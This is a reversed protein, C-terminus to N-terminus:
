PCQQQHLYQQCEEATLSRTRRTNALAILDQVNLFYGRGIGDASITMLHQNDQSFGVWIGGPFTLLAQGTAADWVKSTGDLGGTAIRSGDPSFAVGLITSSHGTLTLLQKGTQIDWVKGLNGSGTLLRKGDPSYAVLMIPDVPDSITQLLKGNAADWIRATQDNSGTALQKGDLSFAVGRIYATHGALDFLKKGTALDWVAAKGDENGLAVQSGDPSIDMGFAFGDFAFSVLQAGTASDWVRAISDAGLTVYRSLDPTSLMASIQAGHEVTTSRLEKAGAPSLDWQKFIDKGSNDPAYATVYINSPRVFWGRWAPTIVQWEQSGTPTLNWLRLSGDSHSTFLRMGDQSLAMSDIMGKSGPVIFLQQGSAADWVRVTGDASATVLRAGDPTYALGNFGNQHGYLAFLHKTQPDSKLAEFDWVKVIVGVAIAIFKQDPSFAVRQPIGESQYDFQKSFLEKYAAPGSTLNLEWLKAVCDGGGTVLYKGDPSFGVMIAENEHGTLDLLAQGSAIDWVKVTNDSSATALFKSNPSFDVAYVPGTHGSLTKLLKGSASDWLNVNNQDGVVALLSGDPSFSLVAGSTFSMIDTYVPNSVTLMSTTEPKGANDLRWIKLNGNQSGSALKQGDPSLAVGYVPSSDANLSAVLRSALLAQHLANQGEITDTKALSQLSLLISREPDVQLSSAAAAALERAAALDARQRSQLGLVGAAVALIGALVLAVTLYVARQRLRSAARTQEEARQKESMALKLATELEYQRQAEREAEERETQTQSVHLFAQEQNNLQRPNAEAWELAQALRAGRYLAGPDHELIEWEQAAETLHRQVRLGERNQTLWERLKPWERILAEHAVEVTDEGTTILRADALKVLVEELQSPDSYPAPPLLENLTARRRTDQTGEGLETLRLFISRAIEQQAPTLEQNYVSEATRAIAGRVGGSEAYAKLTMINGRRRKWTELLAHSLLPLAGPEPQHDEDAGIDHLMFEVLGPSFEWGGRHAPEEIVQRLETTTMAGIYEQHRAVIERLEAYQALHEYFDARLAIVLTLAGDDMKVADLLNDVFARREVEDNCLTFLEEFQDVVLLLRKKPVPTEVRSLLSRSREVHILRQAFLHLSRPDRKLDDILTATATVSEATHTLCLALAELPRATPTTIFVQWAYRGAQDRSHKLTPVLGARIVSSKGSGSAGIVALFRQHQLIEVLRATIPERGFFLGADIEDFFQLGKFPSEGPTPPEEVTSVTKLPPFNIPLGEIDLQFITQAFRIDKLKHTGLDQLSAGSPLDQYVLDRTTQSLLVQGGHGASAIRAARHVDMGIYDAHAILPEGTHLGMRVRVTVDQPWAHAALARQADIVCNVADTARTFAAFFADGQTDIEHGNWRAFAARLLDRQGSLVEAYQERLHELLRTSGEIDTFLFTVTGSPISLNNSGLFEDSVSDVM